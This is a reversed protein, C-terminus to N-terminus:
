ESVTTFPVSVTFGAGSVTATVLKLRNYPSGLGTKVPLMVPMLFPSLMVAANAVLASGVLLTPEYGMRAASM